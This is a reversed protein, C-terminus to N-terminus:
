IVVLKFIKRIEATWGRNYAGLVRKLAEKGPYEDYEYTVDPNNHHQAYPTYYVRIQFMEQVEMQPMKELDDSAYIYCRNSHKGADDDGFRCVNHGEFTKAVVTVIKGNRLAKEGVAFM